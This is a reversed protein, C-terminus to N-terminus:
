EAILRVGTIAYQRAGARLRANANNAFLEITANRGEVFVTESLGMRLAALANPASASAM